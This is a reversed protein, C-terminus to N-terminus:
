DHTTALHGFRPDAGGVERGNIWVRGTRVSGRGTRVARLRRRAEIVRPLRRDRASGRPLTVVVSNMLLM